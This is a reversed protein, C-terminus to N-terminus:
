LILKWDGERLAFIGDDSTLFVSVRVKAADDGQWTALADFSDEGANAPLKEGLINACTALVDNLCLM